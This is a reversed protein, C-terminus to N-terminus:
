SDRQVLYGVSARLWDLDPSPAVGAFASLDFEKAAADALALASQRAWDISGTGAVIDHMRFVERPLRRERPRSLFNSMWDREGRSAHSLAHTLVLTRKGEWLDGDIEKGYRAEDGSLNLVDDTIQFALGLLYGFRDFRGLDPDEPDAVLAGIRLPHIFSYWATKKLALRLYDDTGVSLDNDRVWGLEMAQGELTEMLMHDIEDLIRLAGAPGLFEGSRRVLRMALANMADGTNVALPIGARRHMTPVGRRFESGDEIDDHVLFANHLMEIGAAAPLAHEVRGGLARTTALCLAPRLGKGSRSMFDKVLAYLHTQPEWDPVGSELTQTVLGRYWAMREVFGGPGTVGGIGPVRDTVRLVNDLPTPVYASGHRVAPDAGLGTGAGDIAQDMADLADAVPMAYPRIAAMLPRVQDLLPSAAGLAQLAVQTLSADWPQGARHRAADHLRWPTLVEVEQLPWVECRPGAFAAADLLANVARRAAENAGEMTALDTHTRVYDSALFLNSLGTAAEPRLAWTNVLNVLLPEANALFGPRTPDPATDSDLFWSHLDEDRLIEQTANLSRKLQRWTERAVEDRSCQMAPRGDSGPATWDSVDVSIIDKVEGCALMTPVVSRWFPFQSISTLAWESDIHIVHGHVEPVDRYLYYQVGNMWEVNPALTRLNALSPDAALLDDNVLVAMRELPVAAIYHDGQVVTRVGQEMVVIGSVKDGACLIQEVEANFHYQVGRAQLWSLWPDIWILNTPGDLVRDTSGGTPNVITLMLQAFIDGITRASARRAKAAVLSRTIGDGLFKQYAPSRGEAGIFDWWSISEYEDLRRQECSTLIQWIRSGFFALDDPTLGTVPGFALLIDRLVTGADGPTQPFNAPVEFAPQDYQTFGVRTTAVLHDAVPRGDFSPIRRMTDVVHKYFGPFFRFGHEGPLQHEIAAVGRDALEHGAGGDERDSVPISRAKGGAIDRRELVVVEFGREILEHAASMGAVGGGLIVVRAPKM